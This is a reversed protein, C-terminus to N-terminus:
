GNTIPEGKKEQDAVDAKRYTYEHLRVEWRTKGLKHRLRADAKLREIFQQSYAQLLSSEFYDAYEKDTAGIYMPGPMVTVDIVHPRDLTEGTAASIISLRAHLRIARCEQDSM